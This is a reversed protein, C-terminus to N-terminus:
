LIRMGINNDFPVFDQCKISANINKIIFPDEDCEVIIMVSENEQIHKYPFPGIIDRNKSDSLINNQNALKGVHTYDEPFKSEKGKLSHFAQLEIKGLDINTKGKNKVKVSLYATERVIPKEHDSSNGQLRSIEEAYESNKSWIDKTNWYDEKWLNKLLFIKDM